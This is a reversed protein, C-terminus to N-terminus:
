LRLLHLHNATFILLFPIRVSTIGQTVHVDEKNGTIGKKPVIRILLMNTGSRTSSISKIVLLLSQPPLQISLLM